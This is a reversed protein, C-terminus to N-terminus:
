LSKKQKSFDLKMELYDQIKGRSITMKGSGDPFIKQYNEKLWEIMRSVVDPNKHSIKLDDVHWIITLM